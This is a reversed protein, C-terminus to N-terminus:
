PWVPLPLVHAGPWQPRWRVGGGAAARAHRHPQPQLLGSSAPCGRRQARGTHRRATTASTKLIFPIQKQWDSGGCTQIRGRAGAAPVCHAAGERGAALRAADDWTDQLGHKVADLGRGAVDVKGHADPKHLYVLHAPHPPPPPHHSHACPHLGALLGASCPADGCSWALGGHTSRCGDGQWGRRAEGDAPPRALGKRDWGGPMGEGMGSWGVGGRRCRRGREEGGPPSEHDATRPARGGGQRACGPPPPPRRTGPLPPPARPACGGPSPPPAPAPCAASPWLHPAPSPPAPLCRPTPPPPIAAARGGGQRGQREGSRAAPHRTASPKCATHGWRTTSSSSSVWSTTSPAPPRRGTVEGRHPGAARVGGGGAAAVPM